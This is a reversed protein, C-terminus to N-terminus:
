ASIRCPLLSDVMKRLRLSKALSAVIASGDVPLVSEAFLGPISHSGMGIVM